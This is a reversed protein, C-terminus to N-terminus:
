SRGKSRNSGLSTLRTLPTFDERRALKGSTLQLRTEGNDQTPVLEAKTHWDQDSSCQSGSRHCDWTMESELAVECLSHSERKVAQHHTVRTAIMRRFRQNCAHCVTTATGAASSPRLQCTSCPWCNSRRSWGKNGPGSRTSLRTGLRRQQM